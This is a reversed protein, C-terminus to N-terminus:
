HILDTSSSTHESEPFRKGKKAFLRCRQPEAASEYYYIYICIVRPTGLTGRLELSIIKIIDACKNAGPITNHRKDTKKEM